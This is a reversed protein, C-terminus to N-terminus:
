PEGPRKGRQRVQQAITKSPDIELRRMALFQGKGVPVLSTPFEADANVLAMFFAAQGHSIAQVAIDLMMDATTM